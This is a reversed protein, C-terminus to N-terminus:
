VKTSSKPKFRELIVLLLFGITFRLCELFQFDPVLFGSFILIRCILQNRLGGPISSIRCLAKRKYYLCFNYMALANIHKFIEM